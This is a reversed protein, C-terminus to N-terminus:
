SVKYQLATDQDPVNPEGGFDVGFGLAKCTTFKKDCGRWLNYTDGVEIDYPMSLFLALADTAPNFLEVEMSYGANNGGTWTILGAQFIDTVETRGPDSFIRKPEDANVGAVTGTVLYDGLDAPCFSRIGDNLGFQYPCDPTIVDLVPATLLASLSRVEFVVRNEKVVAKGLRWGQGEYLKGQTLDAWNVWFVDMAARYFLGAIVDAKSIGDLTLPLTLEANDVSLGAKASMESAQFSVDSRYTDGDIVLDCDHGTFFFEEGDDRIVKFCLSMTATIQALHLSLNVSAARM